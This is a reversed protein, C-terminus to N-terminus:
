PEWSPSADDALIHRRHARVRRWALWLGLGAFLFFGGGGVGLMSVWDWRHARRLSARWQAELSAVSLGCNSELAGDFTAGAAVSDLLHDVGAQGCRGLLWVVASRATAYAFDAADGHPFTRSLSALSPLQGSEYADDLSQERDLNFPVSLAEALGEHFWPPVADARGRLKRFVLAHVLEHALVPGPRELAGSADVRMAGDSTTAVGVVLDHRDFGADKIFRLHSDYLYLPIRAAAQVQLAASLMRYDAEAQPAYLSALRRDRAPVRLLFHPTAVTVWGTPRGAAAGALALAFLPVFAVRLLCRPM